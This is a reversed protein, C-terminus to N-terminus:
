AVKVKPVILFPETGKKRASMFVYIVRCIGTVGYQLRLLRRM